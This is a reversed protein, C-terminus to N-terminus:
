PADQEFAGICFYLDALGCEVWVPCTDCPCGKKEPPPDHKGLSCFLGGSLKNTKFTACSGKYCLCKGMSEYTYRVTKM